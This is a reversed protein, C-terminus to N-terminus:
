MQPASTPLGGELYSALLCGVSKKFKCIRFQSIGSCGVLAGLWRLWRWAVLWVVLNGVWWCVCGVLRRVLGHLWGVCAVLWRGWGVCGLLLGVVVTYLM